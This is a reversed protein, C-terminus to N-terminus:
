TVITPYGIAITEDVKGSSFGGVLEVMGGDHRRMSFTVSSFNLRGKFCQGVLVGGHNDWAMPHIIKEIAM